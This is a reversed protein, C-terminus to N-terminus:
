IRKYKLYNKNQAKRILMLFFCLPLFLFLKQVLQKEQIDFQQQIDSIEKERILVIEELEKIREARKEIEANIKEYQSAPLYVGSERRLAQLQAKLENIEVSYEQLMEKKQIKRIVQPQNKINKSRHALKILFIKFFFPYQHLVM